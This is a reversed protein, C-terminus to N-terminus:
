EFVKEYAARVLRVAQHIDAQRKLSYGVEAEQTSFVVFEKQGADWANEPLPDVDDLELNVLLTLQNRRPIVELFFDFVRYTATKPGFLEVVDAGLALVQQRLEAFLLRVELEMELTDASYGAARARLEALEAEQVLSRDVSLPRWVGIAKDALLRGREEIEKGTWTNQERVFKNLRLPSENFGKEMTKKEDFPRDSYESNYGTLTLNGLRHVWVDRIAKWDDGLMKRWEARPEENQPLVHEITLGSTEIREKSDNEIRDLLYHCSRMAYVDRSALAERFEGDAPFRRNKGQRALAVKLSPLPSKEDIRYALTAFIQGLSRTQMDCVSRRFVFSELLGVAEAFQDVSLTKVRHYCDYLRLIVVTAVDGLGRLRAFPEKLV